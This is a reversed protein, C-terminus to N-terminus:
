QAEFMRRETGEPGIAAQVRAGCRPCRGEYATGDANRNLRGYVHCCRFWISLFKARPGKDPQPKRGGSIEQPDPM